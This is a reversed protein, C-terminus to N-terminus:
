TTINEYLHDTLKRITSAVGSSYHMNAILYHASLCEDSNPDKEGILNFLYDHIEKKILKAEERKHYEEYSLISTNDIDVEGEISLTLKSDKKRFINLKM